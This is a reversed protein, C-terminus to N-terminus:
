DNAIELNSSQASYLIKFFYQKLFQNNHLLTNILKM